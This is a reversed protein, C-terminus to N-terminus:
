LFKAMIGKVWSVVEIEPELTECADVELMDAIAVGKLEALLSFVKKGAGCYSEGYSSDGLAVVAFPKNDMQINKEKLDHMFFELNPPIDGEGTTSTIFLLSSVESIAELSPDLFVEVMFGNSALVVSVEEAVHQSNGYVSGVFIGVDKM